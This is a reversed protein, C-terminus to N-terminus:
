NAMVHIALEQGLPSIQVHVVGSGRNGAKARIRIVAKEGADLHSKDLEADVGIGTFALKLDVGGPLDNSITATQVPEAVSLAIIDRDVKVARMLTAPDPPRKFPPPVPNVNAGGKGTQPTGFQLKGFPTQLYLEPDIYQVWEGNEIKWITTVPSDAVVPAFGTMIFTVNVKAHVEARTNNDKLEIQEVKFSHIDPKIGNYFTDKSDEAILAEAQRFKKDVELQYFQEVRARLAAEAESAPPPPQQAWATATLAFAPVLLFRRRV